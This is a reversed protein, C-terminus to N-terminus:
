VVSKRDPKTLQVNIVGAETAPVYGIRPMQTTM